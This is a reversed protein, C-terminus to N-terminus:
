VLPIKIDNGNDCGLVNPSHRDTQTHHAKTVKAPCASSDTLSHCPPQVPLSTFLRALHRTLTLTITHPYPTSHKPTCSIQTSLLSTHVQTSKLHVRTVTIPQTHPSTVSLTLLLYPWKTLSHTPSYNISHTPFHNLAYTLSIIMQYTFAQSQLHTLTYPLSQSCIYAIHDNPLHIRPVTISHTHPSIVSLM